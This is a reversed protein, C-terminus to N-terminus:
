HQNFQYNLNVGFVRAPMAQFPISQYITNTVNDAYLAAVFQHKKFVFVQQLRLDVIYYAALFNSHNATTYRHSVRHM